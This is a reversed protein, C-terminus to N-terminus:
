HGLRDAPGASGAVYGQFRGPAQSGGGDAILAVLGSSRAATREQVTRPEAFLRDDRPGASVVAAAVQARRERSEGYPDVVGDADSRRRPPRRGAGRRAAWEHGHPLSGRDHPLRLQTFTVPRAVRGSPRSAAITPCRSSRLSTSAVAEREPGRRAHVGQHGGRHPHRAGRRPGSPHHGQQPPRPRPDRQQAPHNTPSTTTACTRPASRTTAQDRPQRRLRHRRGYSVGGLSLFLALLSIVIAPSPRLRTVSKLVAGVSRTSRIVSPAKVRFMTYPSVSREAPRRM